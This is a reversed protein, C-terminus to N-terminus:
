QQTRKRFALPLTVILSIVVGMILIGDTSGIESQGNAPPTPTAQKIDMIRVSSAFVPTPSFNALTLVLVMVFILTIVTGFGSVSKM